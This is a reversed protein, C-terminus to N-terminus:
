KLTFLHDKEFLLERMWCLMTDGVKDIDSLGPSQKANKWFDIEKELVQVWEAQSTLSSLPRLEGSHLRVHRNRYLKAFCEYKSDHKFFTVVESARLFEGCEFRFYVGDDSKISSARKSPGLRVKIGKQDCVRFWMSGFRFEPPMITEVVPKGNVFRPIWGQGGRIRASENKFLHQETDTPDLWRDVEVCTGCPVITSVVHREGIPPRNHLHQHETKNENISEPQKEKKRPTRFMSDLFASGVSSAVDSDSSVGVNLMPHGGASLISSGTASSTPSTDIDSESIPIPPLSVTIGGRSIVRLFITDQSRNGLSNGVEEFARTAEGERTHALAGSYGRYQENLENQRPVIAWGSNDSLKILGAGQCFANSAELRKTAEFVSGRPLRRAKTISDFVAPNSTKSTMTTTHHGAMTQFISQNGGGASIGYSDKTPATSTSFGDHSNGSSIAHGGHILNNVQFHPADLIKLGRPANVRMLFFSPVLSTSVTSRAISRDPSFAGGQSRNTGTPDISSTDDSLLSINSSPSMLSRPDVHTQSNNMNMSMNASTDTLASTDNGNQLSPGVVHRPLPTSDIVDMRGGVKRRPPRHRRSAASIPTALLSTASRSTGRSIISVGCEDAEENSIEKMLPVWSSDSDNGDDFGGKRSIRKGNVVWGLRRTLRLFTSTISDNTNPQKGKQPITVRLCVEHITGPILIAKTKPADISPGTLITLPTSSIVRYLFNRSECKPVVDLPIPVAIEINAQESFIYGHKSNKNENRNQDDTDNETDCSIPLSGNDSIPLLSSNLTPIVVGPSPQINGRKPTMDSAKVNVSFSSLSAASATTSNEQENADFAYGGTLVRDVRIVKRM